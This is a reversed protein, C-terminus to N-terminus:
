FDSGDLHIQRPLRLCHYKDFTRNIKEMMLYYWTAICDRLYELGEKETLDDIRIPDSIVTHIKNDKSSDSCDRIYHAVPVVKVGTAKAIRYIGPWLNLVLSNPTKNWVGEPFM